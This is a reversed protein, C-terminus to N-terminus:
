QPRNPSPSRANGPRSQPSANLPCDRNFHGMKGCKFCTSSGPSAPRPSNPRVNVPSGQAPSTSRSQSFTVNRPTHDYMFPDVAALNVSNNGIISQPQRRDDNSAPRWALSPELNGRTRPPKYTLYCILLEQAEKAATKLEHLNPINKGQIAKRYEPHTQRIIRDVIEM